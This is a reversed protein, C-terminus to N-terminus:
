NNMINTIGSKLGIKPFHGLDKKALSIGAQSFRVERQKKDSHKIKLNKGSVSIMLNALDNISTAEGSAINYVNGCKGNIKLIVLNISNV